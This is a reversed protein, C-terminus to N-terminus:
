CEFGGKKGDVSCGIEIVDTNQVRKLEEFSEKNDLKIRERLVNLLKKEADVSTYYGYYGSKLKAIEGAAYTLQEGIEEHSMKAVNQYIELKKRLKVARSSNYGNIFQINALHSQMKEIKEEFKSM